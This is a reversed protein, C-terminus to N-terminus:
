AAGRERAHAARHRAALAEARRAAGAAGRAALWRAARDYRAATRLRVPLPAAPAAAAPSM